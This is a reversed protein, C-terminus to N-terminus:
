LIRGEDAGDDDEDDGDDFSAGCGPCVDDDEGVSAGCESCEFMAPAKPLLEEPVPTGCKRCEYMGPLILNGCAACRGYGPPFLRGEEEMRKRLDDMRKRMWAVLIVVLFFTFALHLCVHYANWKLCFATVESDTAAGTYSLLGTEGAANESTFRYVYVKGGDLAIEASYTGSADAMPTKEMGLHTFSNYAVSNMEAIHIHVTDGAAHGVSFEHIGGGKDTVVVDSFGADTGSLGEMDDINAPSLALGGILVASVVLVAGFGLQIGPKRVGFLRLLVYVIIGSFLLLISGPGSIYLLLIGVAFATAMGLIQALPTGRFGDGGRRIPVTEM